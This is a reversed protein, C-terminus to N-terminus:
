FGYVCVCVLGGVGGVGQAALARQIRFASEHNTDRKSLAKRQPKSYPAPRKRSSKNLTHSEPVSVLGFLDWEHQKQATM